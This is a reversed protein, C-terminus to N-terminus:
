VPKRPEAFLPPRVEGGFSPPPKGLGWKKDPYESLKFKLKAGKVIKTWPLWTQDYNHGNLELTEIYYKDESGGTIELEGNPLHIKIYPFAPSNISFGAVGPIEPYLGLNAFVYWSGMAGMDENGPLGDLKNHYQTEIIRRVVEQTKFPAGAWNYVWPAGFDPQNGMSFWTPNQKPDFYFLADLRIFLSDLRQQAATLGGITDILSKLSYPVMWFYNKYSGERWGEYYARWSGDENRSNLWRTDPNYINKWYQARLLYKNFLSTDNFAQLAFQGIAFDASTYELLM